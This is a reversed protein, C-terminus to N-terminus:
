RQRRSKKGKGKIIGTDAPPTGLKVAEGEIRFTTVGFLVFWRYTEYCHVDILADGGKQAVAEKLAREIDPRGWMWLGLFSFASDTGEAKGLKKEVVKGQLPTTSPTLCIPSTSCATVLLLAASLVTVPLIKMRITM